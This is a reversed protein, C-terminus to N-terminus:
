IHIFGFQDESFGTSRYGLIEPCYGLAVGFSFFLTMFFPQLAM